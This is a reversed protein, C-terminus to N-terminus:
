QKVPPTKSPQTTQKKCGCDESLLIIDM